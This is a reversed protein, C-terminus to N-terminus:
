KAPINKIIDRVSSRRKYNLDFQRYVIIGESNIIYTAPIPLRADDQGNNKAINTNLLIKIKRNYGDTVNFLVNYNSMIKEDIDPIVDFTAQTKSITKEANNVTEPSIAFVRAGKQEIFSLSDQFNSLYKNCVPCWEGRYFILVVPYKEYETRLNIENGNTDKATFDPAIEGIRLGGPVGFSADIGYKTPDPQAQGYSANTFSLIIITVLIRYM